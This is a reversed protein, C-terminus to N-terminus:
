PALWSKTWTGTEFYYNNGQKTATCATLVAKIPSGSQEALTVTITGNKPLATFSITTTETAKTDNVPLGISAGTGGTVGTVVYNRFSPVDINANQGNTAITVASGNYTCQVSGLVTSAATAITTEQWYHELRISGAAPLASNTSCRRNGSTPKVCEGTDSAIVYFAYPNTGGGSLAIYFEDGTPPTTAGGVTYAQLDSVLPEDGLKDTAAPIISSVAVGSNSTRVSATNNSTGVKVGYARGGSPQSPNLSLLNGTNVALVTDDSADWDAIETMNVTTFPLYPLVCDPLTSSGAACQGQARKDALAKALTERAQKELHDVYLGRAHLYRYDTTSPTSITITAPNNLGRASDDYMSQANTPASASTGDYQKLYDKVYTTYATTAATTPLGTKAQVGQVTETELLGFQRSYMDAATRWFGDVRIIRCSDVYTSSTTNGANVLQNSGNLDYKQYTTGTAEPDFKANTSDAPNDHHDRCCEQCLPSQSVGAKPGSAYQQGPATTATDPIYVDYRKGTWVAPWQSARYIEGLNNGGAGYQCTCKLVETEIRQQIVAMTGSPTYTLVNFKTGVLQQNNNRGVLEPTPNSAATSDGNGLAIPIMGATTPDAQRVVPSKPPANGSNNDVLPNNVDLALPSLSTSMNASRAQGQADTWAATVTIQKFEAKSPAVPAGAGFASGNALGGYQTVTRTLTLNGLGAECATVEVANLVTLDSCDPNTATIPAGLSAVTTYSTSRQTDLDAELLAVVRSRIKADASNRALAGQLAALALLGTALLVVALLVELLSFGRARARLTHTRTM